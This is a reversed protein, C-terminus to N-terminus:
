IPSHSLAAGGGEKRGSGLFLRSEPERDAAENVGCKGSVQKDQRKRSKLSGPNLERRAGAGGIRAM